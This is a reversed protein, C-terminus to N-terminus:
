ERERERCSYNPKVIKEILWIIKEDTIKRRILQLLIEHNIEEFYHKIDAKFIFCPSTNNKSVTRMFKEFQTIAFLTGKGKRNACSDHIFSKEFIPELINVIAHHVIRDRFDSKSIKRTKPDRLIFTQMPLPSYFKNKLEFHLDLLNRELYKEFEIVYARRTKGARAKKYALFLNDFDYIKEYLSEMMIRALRTMRGNDNSRDLNENNSNWNRDNRYACAVVELEKVKM